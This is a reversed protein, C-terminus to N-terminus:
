TRMAEHITRVISASIENYIQLYEALTEIEDNDAERASILQAARECLKGLDCFYGIEDCFDTWEGTPAKTKFDIKEKRGYRCLVYGYPATKFGYNGSINIIGKM